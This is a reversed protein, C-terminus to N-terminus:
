ADAANALRFRLRCEVLDWNRKYDVPPGPRVRVWLFKPAIGDALFDRAASLDDADALRVLDHNGFDPVYPFLTVGAGTLKEFILKSWEARTSTATM